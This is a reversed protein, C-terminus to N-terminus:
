DAGQGSIVVRNGGSVSIGSISNSFHVVRVILVILFMDEGGVRASVDGFGASVGCEWGGGPVNCLVM